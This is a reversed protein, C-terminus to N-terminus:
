TQHLLCHICHLYHTSVLSFHSVLSHMWSHYLPETDKCYVAIALFCVEFVNKLFHRNTCVINIQIKGMLKIQATQLTTETTELSKNQEQKQKKKM